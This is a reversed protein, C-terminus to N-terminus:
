RRKLRAKPFELPIRLVARKNGASAASLGLRSIEMTGLKEIRCGLLKFFQNIKTVTERLDAAILTTDSAFNDLHLCLAFMHTMLKVENDTTFQIKTSGRLTETFRAMIGDVIVIPVDGMRKQLLEKKERLKPDCIRFMLLFAIYLVIKIEKKNPKPSSFISNLHQRIWDSRNFPIYKMREEMSSAALINRIPIAEFEAEPIIEYLKYVDEPTTANLDYPPINRNSDAIAKAEQKGQTPLSLTNAEISDQIHGTVSAMASVDVKNREAARIAKQAKRSGFAEGLLNRQEIRETASTSPAPALDKLAKVRRAFIGILYKCGQAANDSESTSYFEVSDTEGAVLIPRSAFEKENEMPTSNPRSYVSFGTSKSPQVAPFSVLLPGVASIDKDHVAFTVQESGDDDVQERKRKKPSATSAM